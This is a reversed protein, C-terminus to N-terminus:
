TQLWRNCVYRYVEQLVCRLYPLKDDLEPLRGCGVVRDIEAHVAEYVEPYLIMALIFTM